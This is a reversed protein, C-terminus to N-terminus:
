NFNSMGVQWFLFDLVQTDEEIIKGV